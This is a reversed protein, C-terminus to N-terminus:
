MLLTLVRCTYWVCARVCAHVCVCVCVCVCARVCACVYVRICACAHARMCACACLLIRMRLLRVVYEEPLPRGSAKVSERGIFELANLLEEADMVKCTHQAHIDDECASELDVKAADGTAMECVDEEPAEKEASSNDAEDTEEDDDNEDGGSEDEESGEVIMAEKAAKLGKEIETRAAFFFYKVGIGDLYKGWAARLKFPLLDAKNFLIVNGKWAGVEKVYKELAESRYLLPNRADVVQRILCVHM